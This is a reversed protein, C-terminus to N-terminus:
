EVLLHIASLGATGHGCCLDEDRIRAVVICRRRIQISAFSLAKDGTQMLLQEILKLFQSLWPWLNPAVRAADTWTVLELGQEVLRDGGRGEKQNHERAVPQGPGIAQALKLSERAAPVFLVVACKPLSQDDDGFMIDVGLLPWGQELSLLPKRKECQIGLGIGPLLVFEKRSAGYPVRAILFADSVEPGIQPSRGCAQVFGHYCDRNGCRLAGLGRRRM